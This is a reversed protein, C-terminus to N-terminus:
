ERTIENPDYGPPYSQEMQKLKLRKRPINKDRKKGKKSHRKYTGKELGKEKEKLKNIKNQITAYEKSDKSVSKRKGILKNLKNKQRENLLNSKSAAVNEAKVLKKINKESRTLTGTNGNSKFASPNKQDRLNRMANLTTKKNDRKPKVVRRKGGKKVVTKKLTGDPNYKKKLKVTEGTDSDKIKTKEVRPRNYSMASSMTSGIGMLNEGKKVKKVSERAGEALSGHPSTDSLGGLSQFSSSNARGDAMSPDDIKKHLKLSMGTGKGPDFGRLKFGKKYYASSKRSGDKNWPM